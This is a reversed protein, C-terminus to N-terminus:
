FRSTSGMSRLVYVFILLSAECSVSGAKRADSGRRWEGPELLAPSRLSNQLSGLSQKQRCGKRKARAREIHERGLGEM